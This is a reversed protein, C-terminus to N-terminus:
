RNRHFSQLEQVSWVGTKLRRLPRHQVGTNKAKVREAIMAILRM